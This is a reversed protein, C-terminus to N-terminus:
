SLTGPSHRARIHYRSAPRHRLARAPRHRRHRRLRPGDALTALRAPGATIAIGPRTLSSAPAPSPPASPPPTAVGALCALVHLPVRLRQHLCTALVKGAPGPRAPRPPTGLAAALAAPDHRPRPPGHRDPRPGALAALDCRAPGPRAPRPGPRRPAPHLEVRRPLRPPHLGPRRAREDARRHDQRRPTPAPDLVAHGDARRRHHDRRHDPRRGRPQDAPRGRWNM